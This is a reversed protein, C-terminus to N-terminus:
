RYLGAQKMVRGSNGETPAGMVAIVVEMCMDLGMMADQYDLQCMGCVVLRM